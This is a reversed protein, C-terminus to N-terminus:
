AVCRSAATVELDCAADSLSIANASNPPVRKLRRSKKKISQEASLTTVYRTPAAARSVLYRSRSRLTARPTHANRQEGGFVPASNASVFTRMGPFSM